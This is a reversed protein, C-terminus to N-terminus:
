DKLQQFKKHLEFEDSTVIAELTNVREQLAKVPPQAELAQLRQELERIKVSGESGRTKLWTNIIKTVFSGIIAIAAIEFPGM